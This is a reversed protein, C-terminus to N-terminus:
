SGERPLLEDPLELPDYTGPRNKAFYSWLSLAAILLLLLCAFFLSDNGNRRGYAAAFLLALGGILCSVLALLRGSPSMGRRYAVSPNAGALNRHFERLFPVFTSSQDKFSAFGRFHKNTIDTKGGGQHRIRLRYRNREYRTPAFKLEVAEIADFGLQERGGNEEEWELGGSSLSYTRTKHFPSLRQTYETM